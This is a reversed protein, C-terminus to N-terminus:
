IIYRKIFLVIICRDLLNMNNPNESCFLNFGKFKLINMIEKKMKNLIDKLINEIM